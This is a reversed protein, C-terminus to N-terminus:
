FFNNNKKLKSEHGKVNYTMSLMFYRALTAATSQTVFNQTGTQVINVRKNLIDFAALRLEIRNDKALLRRVSANWIPIKQDFAFRDNKYDNYTYNSEFFFKDIFNWKINGDLSNNRIKQDQNKQISYSVDTNNANARVGLILKDNAVYTLGAGLNFGLSQTESKVLNIFSPANSINVGGNANLTLKTKIIPFSSWLYGNHRYGGAVNEPKTTTRIGINPLEEIFQNYVIQNDFLETSLNIGLNGFSAPNWYNINFSINHFREPTLDPNGDTRFAPNNVNPIPQLDNFRPERIGYSYNASLYMNNKFEFSSSLYPLINNYKRNLPSTLLPMDRDISYAGKLQIQQAAVGLTMNKGNHSYRVSTGLRNYLVGNDYFVSLNDIRESNKLLDQVQRNVDNKTNSYNFFSESFWKKTIADTYLLSSKTQRTANDRINLQRIQETFTTAQFFQNLTNLNETGDSANDNYGVSAAFSRGKKKFLHRFILSSTLNHADQENNNQTNLYRTNANTNLDNKFGQSFIGETTNGSFRTNLKAILRNTSDIEWEYRSNISHNNRFEVRDTTDRNFFSKDQLFSQRLSFQDLDLGTQNYTYSLNFKKKKNDFNYNAGGGYNKTFGRGDFNNFFPENNSNFWMFNGGSNFGFDGNDNGNFTNQGKFEGYDDWNVGTQNINNAFGIVSFQEKKNFRNYNGRSAWREETGIAGTIKGFAGKKYEEKLELNMAKEKKGDDIGTLKAQESKENFVQVKSITQADLNKTAAKPDDSFFTKGDVYVKKVDKGQAKINGDADVEIGPLRRLLDEVTSGPPVKFSSANYEITDGRISLPAKATKIVVEMLEKTIPKMKLAGLDNIPNASPEINQQFPIFGVFSIKFLYAQNKVNKFEFAGKDDGRTFNLLASDKPNLLMITAFPQEAGLTDQVIGKISVKSPNQASLSIGCLLFLFPLLRKKM